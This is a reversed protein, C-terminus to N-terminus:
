PRGWLPVGTSAQPHTHHIISGFRWSLSVVRTRVVSVGNRDTDSKGQGSTSVVTQFARSPAEQTRTGMRQTKLHGWAATRGQDAEM